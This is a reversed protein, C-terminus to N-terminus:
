LRLRGTTLFLTTGDAPAITEARSRVLGHGPSWATLGADDPLLLHDVDADVALHVSTALFFSVPPVAHAACLAAAPHLCQEGDPLASAPLASSAEAAVAEGAAELDIVSPCDPPHVNAPASGAHAFAGCCLAVASQALLAFAAIFSVMCQRRMSRHMTTKGMSGPRTTFNM